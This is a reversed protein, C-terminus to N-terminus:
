TMEARLLLMATLGWIHYGSAPFYATKRWYGFLNFEIAQSSELKLIDWPLSFIASVEDPNPKLEQLTTAAFGAIAIIPRHNLDLMAPWAGVVTVQNPPLGIEEWSERLATAAPHCDKSERRGGPFGIQGKHTRMSISRRTFVIHAAQSPEPAPIFLILVASSREHFHDPWCSPAAEIKAM